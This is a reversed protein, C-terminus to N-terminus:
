NFVEKAVKQIIQRLDRGTEYMFARSPMGQTWHWEGDKYYYWGNKGHSNVDYKWNVLSTDPHPSQSGVVGTGFEVYIAWDCDTYIYWTAGEPSSGGYEAKISSLLEGTYIADKESVKIRALAVGEEALREAFKKCKNNLGEKYKQVEKIANRVESVSLGFSIKKAM